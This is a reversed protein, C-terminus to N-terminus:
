QLSAIRISGSIKGWLSRRPKTLHPIYLICRSDSQIRGPSRDRHFTSKLLLFVISRDHFIWGLPDHWNLPRHKWMTHLLLILHMPVMPIIMTNISHFLNRAKPSLTPIDVSTSAFILHFNRICFTCQKGSSIVPGLLWVHRSSHRPFENLSTIFSM